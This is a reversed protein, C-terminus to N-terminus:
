LLVGLPIKSETLLARAPEHPPATAAGATVAARVMPEIHQLPRPPSKQFLRLATSTWTTM